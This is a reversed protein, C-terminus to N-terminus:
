LGAVLAARLLRQGALPAALLDAAFALLLVVRSMLTPWAGPRRPRGEDTAKPLTGHNPTTSLALVSHYRVGDKTVLQLSFAAMFITSRWTPSTTM